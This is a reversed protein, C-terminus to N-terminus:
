GPVVRTAKGSMRAGWTLLAPLRRLLPVAGAVATPHMAWHAIASSAVM